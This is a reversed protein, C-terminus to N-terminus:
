LARERVWRGLIPSALRFGGATKEIMDRGILKRLINPSPLKALEILENESITPQDITSLLRIVQRQDDDTDKSTWIENFYATATQMVSEFAIEVDARTAFLRKEENLYNM